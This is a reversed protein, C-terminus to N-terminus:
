KRRKNVNVVLTLGEAIKAWGHTSAVLVTKKTSSLPAAAVADPSLDVEVVLKYRGDETEITYYSINHM